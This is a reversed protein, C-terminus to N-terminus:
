SACEVSMFIFLINIPSTEDMGKLFTQYLDDGFLDRTYNTFVLPLRKEVEEVYKIGQKDQISSCPSETVQDPQSNDKIM